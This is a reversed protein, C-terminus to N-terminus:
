MDPNQVTINNTIIYAATINRALTMGPLIYEYDVERNNAFYLAQHKIM